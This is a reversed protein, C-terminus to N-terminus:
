QQHLRDMEKEDLKDELLRMRERLGHLKTWAIFGWNAVDLIEEEVESLLTFAPREFSDDGYERHGQRLRKELRTVFVPWEDKWRPHIRQRGEERRRENHARDWATPTRGLKSM